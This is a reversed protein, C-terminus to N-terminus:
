DPGQCSPSLNLYQCLLPCCLRPQYWHHLLTLPGQSAPHLDLALYSHPTCYPDHPRHPPPAHHLHLPLVNIIAGHHTKPTCIHVLQPFIKKIKKKLGYLLLNHTTFPLAHIFQPSM